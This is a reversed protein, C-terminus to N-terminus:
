SKPKRPKKIPGSITMKNVDARSDPIILTSKLIQVGHRLSLAAGIAMLLCLHQAKKAAFFLQLLIM